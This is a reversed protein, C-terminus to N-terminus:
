NPDSARDVDTFAALMKKLFFSHFRVASSKQM